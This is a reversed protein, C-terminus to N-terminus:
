FVYSTHKPIFHKSVFLISYFDRNHIKVHHKAFVPSSRAPSIHVVNGIYIEKNHCCPSFSLKLEFTLKGHLNSHEKGYNFWRSLWRRLFHEGGFVHISYTNWM